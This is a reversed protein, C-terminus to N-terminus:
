SIRKCPSYPRVCGRGWRDYSAVDDDAVLPYSVPDKQSRPLQISNTLGLMKNGVSRTEIEKGLYRRRIDQTPEYRRLGCDPQRTIKASGVCHVRRQSY